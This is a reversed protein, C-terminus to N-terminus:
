RCPVYQTRLGFRDGLSGFSLSLSFIEHLGSLGPRPSRDMKATLRGPGSPKTDNRVPETSARLDMSGGPCGCNTRVLFTLPRVGARSQNIGFWTHGGGTRWREPPAAPHSTRGRPGSGVIIEPMDGAVDAKPRLCVNGWRGLHPAFPGDVDRCVYTSM